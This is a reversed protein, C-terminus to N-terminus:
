KRKKKHYYEAINLSRMVTKKGQKSKGLAAPCDQGKGEPKIEYIKEAVESILAM